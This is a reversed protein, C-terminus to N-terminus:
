RALLLRFKKVGWIALGALKGFFKAIDEQWAAFGGNVGEGCLGVGWALIRKVFTESLNFEEWRFVKLGVNACPTSGFRHDESLWVRSLLSAHLL